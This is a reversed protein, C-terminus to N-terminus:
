KLFLYHCALHTESLCCCTVFALLIFPILVSWFPFLLVSRHSSLVHGFLIMSSSNNNCICLCRFESIDHCV